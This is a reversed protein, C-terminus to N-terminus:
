VSTAGHLQVVDLEDLVTADVVNTVGDVRSRHCFQAPRWLGRPLLAQPLGTRYTTHSREVHPTDSVRRRQSAPQQLRTTGCGGRGSPCCRALAPAADQAGYQWCRWASAACM